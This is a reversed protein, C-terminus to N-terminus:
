NSSHASTLARLRGNIEAPWSSNLPWASQLPSNSALRRDYELESVAENYDGMRALIAARVYHANLSQPATKVAYDALRLAEPLQSNLLAQRALTTASMSATARTDFNGRFVLIASGGITDDHPINRFPEVGEAEDYRVSYLAASSVLVVGDMREPALGSYWNAVVQCPIGYQKASVLSDPMLWCHDSPHQEMYHKAQWFSQGWDTGGLYKYSQTPGGWCENGYSLYNPFARLSSAVHLMLLCAIAYKVWRRRSALEMCGAATVIILFPLMPLIHRMGGNWSSHVFGAAFLAVPVVLFLIERGYKTSAIVIGEVSLLVTLLFGVTCCISFNLGLGFWPAKAQLKGLVYVPHSRDSYVRLQTGEFGEIYAEPLLHEENVFRVLAGTTSTSASSSSQGETRAFEQSASYRMGYGSWLVIYAALFIVVVTGVNRAITRICSQERNKKILPDAIALVILVPVVIVGSIKALLTLGTATSALAFHPISPRRMWLYIGLVAFLLTTTVAMDTTVLMGHALLNPEFVLFLTAVIAVNFNFMKRATIWVLVGLALSFSSIALRAWLLESRWNTAYFWEFATNFQAVDNGYYPACDVPPNIWLLPMAGISKALPPHAASFTLDGCKLYRYGSYLHVAEDVTQSLQRSSFFLQAFMIGCLVLPTAWELHSRMRESLLRTSEVQFQMIRKGEVLYRVRM